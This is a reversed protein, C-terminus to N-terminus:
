AVHQYEHLFGGVRDRRKIKRLQGSLGRRLRTQTRRGATIAPGVHDRRTAATLDPVPATDPNGWTRKGHGGGSGSTRTEVCGNEVHRARQEVATPPPPGPTPINAGRYRYRTVAVSSAGTFVVGNHAIQRSTSGPRGAPTEVPPNGRAAERVRRARKRAVPAGCAGDQAPTTRMRHGAVSGPHSRGPIPLAHHPVKAPNFLVRETTGPWWGGACYRRRLEKWTIRRHKRRLWGIVRAWTYASLYAFTASSVGPRFHACWGRLMQNLRLLLVELPQNTDMRRCWTKVKGM